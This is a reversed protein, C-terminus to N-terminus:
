FWFLKSAQKILQGSNNVKLKELLHKRHTEVTNISIFCKEAIMKSSLGDGILVLIEKERKTLESIGGEFSATLKDGAPLLTKKRQSKRITLAAELLKPVQPENILEDFHTTQDEAEAIAELKCVVQHPQGEDNVDIFYRTDRLWIMRGNKHRFRYKLILPSPKEMKFHVNVLDRFKTIILESVGSLDQPHIKSLWFDMGGKAFDEPKFGCLIEVPTGMYMYNHNGTCSLLYICCNNEKFAPDFFDVPIELDHPLHDRLDFYKKLENSKIINIKVLANFKEPAV